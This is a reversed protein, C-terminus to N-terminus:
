ALAGIQRHSPSPVLAPVNPWSCSAKLPTDLSNLFHRLGIRVTMWMVAGWLPWRMILQRDRVGCLAEYQAVHFDVKALEPFAWGLQGPEDGVNSAARKYREYCDMRAMPDNAM